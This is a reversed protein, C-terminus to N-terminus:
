LVFRSISVSASVSLVTLLINWHHPAERAQILIEDQVVVAGRTVVPTHLVGITLRFPVVREASVLEGQPEAHLAIHDLVGGKLPRAARDRSCRRRKHGYRDFALRPRLGLIRRRTV